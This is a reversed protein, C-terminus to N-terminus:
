CSRKQWDRLRRKALRIAEPPTKQTKKKFAELSLFMQKRKGQPAFLIRYIVGKGDARVEYIEGDLHRAAQLGQRRVDKMAAVVSALDEDGLHDLFEKIPRRGSATRYDRWRHKVVARRSKAPSGKSM